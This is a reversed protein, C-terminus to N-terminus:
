LIFDVDSISFGPIEAQRSKIHLMDKMASATWSHVNLQTYVYCRVNNRNISTLRHLPVDFHVCCLRDRICM